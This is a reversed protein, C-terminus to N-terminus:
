VERDLSVKALLHFHLHPVMKATGGNVVIRYGDETWGNKEVEGSIVKKIRLVVEDSAKHFDEIHERPVFLWHIPANPFKSKFGVVLEDEYVFEGITIQANPPYEPYSAYIKYYITGSM